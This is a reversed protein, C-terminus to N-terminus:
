IREGFLLSSEITESALQKSGSVAVDDSIALRM